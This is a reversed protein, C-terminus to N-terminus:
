VEAITLTIHSSRKKISAARGQARPMFRKMTPGVDVFIQAIMLNDVDVTSTNKANAIASRVMKAIVPAAKKNKFRLIDLADQVLKGRVLDAVLRAKRASMRFNKLHARYLQSM